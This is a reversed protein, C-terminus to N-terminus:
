TTGISEISVSLIRDAGGSSGEVIRGVAYDGSGLGVPQGATTSAIIDGVAVTSAPNTIKSVGNIMITAALGSTPKNQLVGFVSAGDTPTAAGGTSSVTVFTFQRASLDVAAPLTVMQGPIEIAM